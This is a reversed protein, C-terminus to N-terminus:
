WPFITNLGSSRTHVESDMQLWITINHVGCILTHLFSLPLVQVQKRQHFQRWKFNQLQSQYGKSHDEHVQIHEHRNPKATTRTFKHANTDTKIIMKSLVPTFYETKRPCLPPHHYLDKQKLYPGPPLKMEM